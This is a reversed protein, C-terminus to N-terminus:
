AVFNLLQQLIYYSDSYVTIVNISNELLIYCSKWHRFYYHLIYNLKPIVYMTNQFWFQSETIM